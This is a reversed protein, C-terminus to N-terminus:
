RPSADVMGPMAELKKLMQQVQNQVPPMAELPKELTQSLYPMMRQKVEAVMPQVDPMMFREPALNMLPSSMSRAYDLVAVVATSELSVQTQMSGSAGPPKFLAKLVLQPNAMARAEIRLREGMEAVPLNELQFHGQADSMASQALDRGSVKIEFSLATPVAMESPWLVVGTLTSGKTRPTISLSLMQDATLAVPAAPLGVQCSSLLMLGALGGM